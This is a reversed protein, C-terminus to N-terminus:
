GNRGGKVRANHEEISKTGHAMMAAILATSPSGGVIEQLITKPAPANAPALAAVPEKMAANLAILHPPLQKKAGQAKPKEVGIFKGEPTFGWKAGYKKYAEGHPIREKYALYEVEIRGRKEPSMKELDVM